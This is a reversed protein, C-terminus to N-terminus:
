TEHIKENFNEVLMEAARRYAMLRADFTMGGQHPTIFINKGFFKSNFLANKELGLYEEAIVDTYYYFDISNLKECISHEDVIEGRATNIIILNEKINSLAELNIMKTTENTVHCHISVIDSSSMIMDLDKEQFNESQIEDSKYPDYISVNSGLNRMMNSYIKGLRGFGIVGINLMNIQRGIFPTYNWFGNDVSKISLPLKRVAALTLCLAHEATSTIKRLTDLEETISIIKIKLDRADNINIHVTGTSATVLYKLNKFQSLFRQDYYVPCNNPNTFIIETEFDDFKDNYVGDEDYSKIVQFNKCLLEKVPM